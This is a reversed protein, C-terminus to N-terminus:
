IEKEATQKNIGTLSAEKKAKILEMAIRPYQKIHQVVKQYRANFEAEGDKESPYYLENNENVNLGINDHVDDGCIVEVSYPTGNAEPDEFCEKSEKYLGVYVLEINDCVTLSVGNIWSEYPVKNADKFWEKIDAFTLEDFTKDRM